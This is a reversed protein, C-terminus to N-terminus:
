LAPNWSVHCFCIETVKLFKEANNIGSFSSESWYWKHEALEYVVAFIFQMHLDCISFHKWNRLNVYIVDCCNSSWHSANEHCCELIECSKWCRLRLEPGVIYLFLSWSKWSGCSGQCYSHLKSNASQVQRIQVFPRELDSMFLVVM